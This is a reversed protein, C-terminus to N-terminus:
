YNCEAYNDEEVAVEYARLIFDFQIENGDYQSAETKEQHYRAQVIQDIPCDIVKTIKELCSELSDGGRRM